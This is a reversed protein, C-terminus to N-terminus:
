RRRTTIPIRRGRYPKVPRGVPNARLMTSVLNATVFETTAKGRSHRITPTMVWSPDSRMGMRRQKTTGHQQQQNESAPGKANLGGM